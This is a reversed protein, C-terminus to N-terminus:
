KSILPLLNQSIIEAAKISGKDNFHVHDYIYEHTDSPIEKALDVLVINENKAVDRIVDNFRRHFYEDEPLYNHGKSYQPVTFLSSISDSEEANYIYTQTMLVPEVEWAKAVSVFSRISKTYLEVISEPDVKYTNGRYPAWEDVALGFQKKSIQFYANEFRLYLEPFWQALFPAESLRQQKILWNDTVAPNYLLSRKFNNNWYSQTYLLTRLDNFNHKLVVINPNYPLVKNLFINLSHLSHNGSVGSNYANIKLNTKDSLIKGVLYPFRNSEDVYLTETSSGGLFFITKDPNSHGGNPLIFGDSDTRLLYKRQILSFTNEMYNNDPFSTVNLNPSYEKLRISRVQDIELMREKMFQYKLFLEIFWLSLVLSLFIGIGIVAWFKKGLNEFRNKKKIVIESQKIEDNM